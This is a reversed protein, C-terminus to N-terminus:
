FFYDFFEDNTDFPLPSNVISMTRNQFFTESKPNCTANILHIYSITNLYTNWVMLDSSRPIAAFPSRLYWQKARETLNKMKVTAKITFPLPLRTNNKYNMM